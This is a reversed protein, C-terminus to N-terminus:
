LFFALGYSIAMIIMCIGSLIFLINYVFLTGEVGAVLFFIGIGLLILGSLFLCFLGCIVEYKKSEKLVELSKDIKDIEEVTEVIERFQEVIERGAEPNGPIDITGVSELTAKAEKIVESLKGTAESPEKDNEDSM